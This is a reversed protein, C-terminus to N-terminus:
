SAELDGQVARRAERESIHNRSRPARGNMLRGFADCGHPLTSPVMTRLRGEEKRARHLGARPQGELGSTVTTLGRGSFAVLIFFSPFAPSRTLALTRHASSPSEARREASPIRSVPQRLPATSSSGPPGSLRAAM